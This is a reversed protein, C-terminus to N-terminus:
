YLYIYNKFYSLLHIVTLNSAAINEDSVNISGDYGSKNSLTSVSRNFYNMEQRTLFADITRSSTNQM